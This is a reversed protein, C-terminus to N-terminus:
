PFFPRPCLFIPLCVTMEHLKSDRNANFERMEKQIRAENKIAEQHAEKVKVVAAEQEKIQTKIAEVRQKM